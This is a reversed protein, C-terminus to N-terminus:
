NHTKMLSKTITNTDCTMYEEIKYFRNEALWSKLTLKFTSLKLHQCEKPLKNFLTINLSYHSQQTKKLRVFPPELKYKARTDYNHVEQRLQYDELNEKVNVLASFIYM